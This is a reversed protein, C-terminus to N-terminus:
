LTMEFGGISPSVGPFSQAVQVVDNNSGQYTAIEVASLTQTSLPTEKPRSIVNQNSVVVEDLQQVAEKLIFNYTPAGKSRVIINYKTQSQHGLYSAILNYPGPSVGM